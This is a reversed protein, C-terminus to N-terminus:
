ITQANAELLRLFIHYYLWVQVIAFLFLLATAGFLLRIPTISVPRFLWDYTMSEFISRASAIAKSIAM